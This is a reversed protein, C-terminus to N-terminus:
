FSCLKCRNRKLSRLILFLTNAGLRIAGFITALRVIDKVFLMFGACEYEFSTEKYFRQKKEVTKSIKSDCVCICM